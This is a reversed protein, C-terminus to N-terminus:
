TRPTYNQLTCVTRKKHNDDLIRRWYNNNIKLVAKKLSEFISLNKKSYCLKESIRM